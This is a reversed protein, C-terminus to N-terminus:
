CLRHLRKTARKHTNRLVFMAPKRDTSQTPRYRQNRDNCAHSLNRIQKKIASVAPARNSELAILAHMRGSEQTYTQACDTCDYPRERTHVDTRLLHLCVTAGKHTGRLSILALMRDSEQTYTQACDTCAYPRERTHVDSRWLQLRATARRHTRRLAILAPM